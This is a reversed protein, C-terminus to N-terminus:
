SMLNKVIGMRRKLSTTHDVASDPRRELARKALEPGQTLCAEQRFCNLVQEHYPPLNLPIHFSEPNPDLLHETIKQYTEKYAKRCYTPDLFPAFVADSLRLCLPLCEDPADAEDSLHLYSIQWLSHNIAQWDWDFAEPPINAADTMLQPRAKEIDQQAGALLGYIFEQGTFSVSDEDSFEDLHLDNGLEQGNINAESESAEINRETRKLRVSHDSMAFLWPKQDAVHRFIVDRLHRFPVVPMAAFKQSFDDPFHFFPVSVETTAASTTEARKRQHQRGAEFFLEVYTTLEGASPQRLIRFTCGDHDDVAFASGDEHIFLFNLYVDRDPVGDQVILDFCENDWLYAHPAVWYLLRGEQFWIPTFDAYSDCPLGPFDLYDEFFDEPDSHSFDFDVEPYRNCLQQCVAEPIKLAKDKPQTKTM